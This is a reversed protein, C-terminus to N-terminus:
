IFQSSFSFFFTADQLTLTLADVAVDAVDAAVAAVVVATIATAATPTSPWGNM